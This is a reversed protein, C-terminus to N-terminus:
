VMLDAVLNRFYSHISRSVGKEIDYVKHIDNENKQIMTQKKIVFGDGAGTSEM